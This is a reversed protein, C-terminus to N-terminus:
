PQPQRRDRLPFSHPTRDHDYPDQEPQSEYSSRSASCRRLHKSSSSSQFFFSSSALAANLLPLPHYLDRLWTPFAATQLAAM